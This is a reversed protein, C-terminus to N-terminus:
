ASAAGIANLEILLALGTPVVFLLNTLSVPAGEVAVIAGAPAVPPIM